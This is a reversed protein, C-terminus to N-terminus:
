AVRRAVLGATQRTMVLGTPCPAPSALTRSHGPTQNHHKGILGTVQLIRILVTALGADSLDEASAFALIDLNFCKIKILKDLEENDFAILYNSHLEQALEARLCARRSALLKRATRVAYTLVRLLLASM